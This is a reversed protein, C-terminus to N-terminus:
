CPSPLPLIYQRQHIVNGRLSLMGLFLFFSPTVFLKLTLGFQDLQEDEFTTLRDVEPSSLYVVDIEKLFAKVM